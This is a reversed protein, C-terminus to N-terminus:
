TAVTLAGYGAGHVLPAVRNARHSTLVPLESSVPSHTLIRIVIGPSTGPRPEPATPAAVVWSLKQSSLQM